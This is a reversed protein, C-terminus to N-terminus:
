CAVGDLLLTEFHPALVPWAYSQATQFGAEALRTRLAADRMREIAYRLAVADGPAVLLGSEAHEVLDTTGGGHTAIVPLRESMAELVTTPMGETRGSALKLSALVFVDAARLWATKVGERVEGVFRVNARSSRALSELKAREPGDGAVILTVHSLEAVARILVDIGKIPILRGLSLLTLGSLGLRRRLSERDEDIAPSPAVGMASVHARGSVDLRRVPDLRSLFRSRLDRSSFVLAQASAAVQQALQASGPLRELLHVDASHLIALHPLRKSLRGAVLACPLAWHSVVADWSQVRTQAARFLAAVFPLTGLWARPDRTLNDLVGAGYFTRELARPLYRVWHVEVGPWAPPHVFRLEFPEPALVELSHGLAALARAFGLVFTGPVDGEERPFSTTLLGIRM